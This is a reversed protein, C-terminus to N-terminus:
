YNKNLLINLRENCAKTVEDDANLYLSHELCEKAKEYNGIEMYVMALNCLIENNEGGIQLAKTYYEISKNFNELSGHCLGLEVLTDLQNEELELVKNFYKISNEYQLLQRHALGIFFLLNWWKEYKDELELLITLGEQPRGALVAEYGREYKAKDEIELLMQKIESNLEKRDDLELYKKWYLKAKSFQKSDSYLFGLHYYALSFKEDIDLVREFYIIAERKFDEYAKSKLSLNENAYKLLSLGYNFLYHMNEHNLILLAKLWIISEIMKGGDAFRIAEYNIYKEIEPNVAYLFKIYEDKYKFNSDVGLLYIMGKVIGDATIIENEEKTKIRHALEDTLLPVYLGEDPVVYNNVKIAESSLQVFSLDETRKRIYPEILFDM